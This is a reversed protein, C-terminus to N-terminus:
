ELNQLAFLISQHLSFLLYVPVASLPSNSLSGRDVAFSRDIPDSQFNISLQARRFYQNRM